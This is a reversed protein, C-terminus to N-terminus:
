PHCAPEIGVPKDNVHFGRFLRGQPYICLRLPAKEIDHVPRAIQTGLEYLEM